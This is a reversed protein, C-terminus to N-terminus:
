AQSRATRGAATVAVIGGVAVALMAAGIMWHVPTFGSASVGDAQELLVRGVVSGEGAVNADLLASVRLTYAGAAVDDGALAPRCRDTVEDCLEFTWDVDNAIGTAYVIGAEAFRAASPVALPYTQTQPEGPLFQDFALTVEIPEPVAAKAPLTTALIGLAALLVVALLTATM